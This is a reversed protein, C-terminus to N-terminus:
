VRAEERARQRKKARAKKSTGDTYPKKEGSGKAPQALARALQRARRDADARNSSTKVPAPAFVRKVRKEVPLDFEAERIANEMRTYAQRLEQLSANSVRLEDWANFAKKADMVKVPDIRSLRERMMIATIVTTLHARERKEFRKLVGRAETIANNMRGEYASCPLNKVIDVLCRLACISEMELKVFETDGLAAFKRVKGDIGKVLKMLETALSVMVHKPTNSM